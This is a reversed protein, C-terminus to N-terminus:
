NTTVLVRVRTANPALAQVVVFAHVPDRGDLGRFKQGALFCGPHAATVCHAADVVLGWSLLSARVAPVLRAVPTHVTLVGDFRRCGGGPAQATCPPTGWAAPLLRLSPWAPLPASPLTVFEASVVVYADVPRPIGGYERRDNAFVAVNVGRLTLWFTCDDFDDDDGPCFKSTTPKAGRGILLQKVSTALQQASLTTSTVCYPTPVGCATDHRDRTAGPVTPLSAALQEAPRAEAATPLDGSGSADARGVPWLYNVLAAALAVAVAVLFPWRVRTTIVARSTDAPKAM